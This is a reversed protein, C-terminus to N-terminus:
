STYFKNLLKQNNPTKLYVYRGILKGKEDFVEGAPVPAEKIESM